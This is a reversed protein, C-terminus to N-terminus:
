KMSELLVHQPIVDYFDIPLGGDFRGAFTRNIMKLGKAMPSKYMLLKETRTGNNLTNFFKCTEQFSWKKSSRSTIYARPSTDVLDKLVVEPDIYNLKVVDYPFTLDNNEVWQKVTPLLECTKVDMDIPFYFHKYCFRFQVKYIGGLREVNFEYEFIM